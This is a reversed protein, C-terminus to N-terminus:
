KLLRIWKVSRWSWFLKNCDAQLVICGKNGVKRYYLVIWTVFNASNGQIFKWPFLTFVHNIGYSLLWDIFFLHKLPSVREEGKIKKELFFTNCTCTIEGDPIEGMQIEFRTLLAEKKLQHISDARSLVWSITINFLKQHPKSYQNGKSIPVAVLLHLQYNTSHATTKVKGKSNIINFSKKKRLEEERRKKEKKKKKDSKIIIIKELDKLQWVHLVISSKLIMLQSTCLLMSLVFFYITQSWEIQPNCALAQCVHLVNM